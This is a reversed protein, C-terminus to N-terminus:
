QIITTTSIDATSNFLPKQTFISQLETTPTLAKVAAFILFFYLHRYM